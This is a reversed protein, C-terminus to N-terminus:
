RKSCTIMGDTATIGLMGYNSLASIASNFFPTPHGYPDIDVIDFSPALNKADGLQVQIIHQLGNQEM